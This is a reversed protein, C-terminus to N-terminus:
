KKGEGLFWLFLERNDDGTTRRSLPPPTVGCDDDRDDGSNEDSILFLPPLRSGAAIFGGVSLNQNVKL